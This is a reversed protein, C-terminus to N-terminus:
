DETNDAIQANIGGAACLETSENCPEDRIGLSKSLHWACWEEGNDKTLQLIDDGSHSYRALRKKYDEGEEQETQRGGEGEEFDHCCEDHVRVPAAFKRAPGDAGNDGDDRCEDGEDVAGLESQLSEICNVGVDVIDGEEECDPALGEGCCGEVAAAVDGVLDAPRSVEDEGDTEGHGM